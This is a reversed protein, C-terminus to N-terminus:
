RQSQIICTWKNGKTNKWKETLTNFTQFQIIDLGAANNSSNAKRLGKNQEYKAIAILSSFSFLFFFCSFFSFLQLFPFCYNLETSRRGKLLQLALGNELLFCIYTWHMTMGQISSVQFKSLTYVYYSMIFTLGIRIEVQHFHQFTFINQNSNVVKLEIVLSNVM